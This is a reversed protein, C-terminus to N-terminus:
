SSRTSWSGMSRDLVSAIVAQEGPDATYVGYDVPAGRRRPPTRTTCGRGMPGPRYLALLATVDEPERPRLARALEAM